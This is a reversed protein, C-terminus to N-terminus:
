IHSSSNLNWLWSNNSKWNLDRNINFYFKSTTVLSSTTRTSIVALICCSLSWSKIIRKENLWYSIHYSFNFEFLRWQQFRRRNDNLSSKTRSCWPDNSKLWCFSWVYQKSNFHWWSLLHSSHWKLNTKSKKM